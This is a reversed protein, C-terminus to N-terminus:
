ASGFRGDKLEAIFRAWAAREFGLAPQSTDKSDRMLVLDGDDAIEVCASDTCHTSRRWM